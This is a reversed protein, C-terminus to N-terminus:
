GRSELVRQLFEEPGVMPLPPDPRGLYRKVARAISVPSSPDFTEDPDLSDRVYDLEGALVGIGAARAEILPLGLSEFRSPYILAGSREYLERTDGPALAGLNRVNLGGQATRHAIDAALEPYQADPVTLCLSPHLGEHALLEWARMLNRHNKHPEGTAVYVFDHASVTADRPASRRRSYEGPAACFPLVVAQLGLARHAEVAM